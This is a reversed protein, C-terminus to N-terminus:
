ADDAALPPTSPLRIPELRWMKFLSWCLTRAIHRAGVRRTAQVHRRERWIAGLGLIADRQGRAIIGVFGRRAASALGLLNVGLVIPLLPWLLLGPTNKVFCWIANRIGHYRSFEADSATSAGGVHHVVAANVQWCRYGLLRLRYGLDVDEVYCFFREDFGGAEHFADSRYLAAAGCASFTEGEPPLASIPYKHGGRWPFGALGFVDGCGDLRTPDAADLQTSGFVAVDPHALTARHLAELWGPEPFADPNLTALWPSMAGRAALNNGAAYGLNEGAEIFRFRPDSVLARARDLSGDNSGNDIVLVDFDSFTQHTLAAVTRSLHDGANYNVIIVTVWPPLDAADQSM